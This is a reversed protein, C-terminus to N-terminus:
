NEYQSRRGPYFTVIVWDEGSVKYVVRLVHRTDIRRQAILLPMRDTDVSEPELVTLIVSERSIRFGHRILVVFKREAHQTFKIM